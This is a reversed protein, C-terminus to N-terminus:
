SRSQGSANSSQGRPGTGSGVASCIIAYPRPAGGRWIDRPFQGTGQALEHLTREIREDDWTFTGVHRGQPADVGLRNAWYSDSAADRHNHRRPAEQWFIAEVLPEATLAGTSSRWWATDTCNALYIARKAVNEQPTGGINVEGGILKIDNCGNIKIPGTM